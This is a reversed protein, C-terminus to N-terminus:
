IFSEVSSKFLNLLVNRLLSAWVAPSLLQGHAMIINELTHINSRRIEVRPDGGLEQIKEILITWIREV